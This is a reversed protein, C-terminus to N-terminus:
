KESNSEKRNVKDVDKSERGLIAFVLFIALLPIMLIEINGKQETQKRINERREKSEKLIKQKKLEGGYHSNTWADFDYIPTRGTATTKEKNM